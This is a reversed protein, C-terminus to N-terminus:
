RKGNLAAPEPALAARRAYERRYASPTSGTSQRFVTCTKPPEKGNMLDDLIAAGEFGIRRSGGV